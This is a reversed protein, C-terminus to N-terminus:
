DALRAAIDVTPYAIFPGARLGSWKLEQKTRDDIGVWARALAEKLPPAVEELHTDLTGPRARYPRVALLTLGANSLADITEHYTSFRVFGAQRMGFLGHTTDRTHSPMVPASYLFLGGPRLCRIMETLSEQQSAFYFLGYRCIVIDSVADSFPLKWPMDGQVLRIKEGGGDSESAERTVRLGTMDRDYCVVKRVGKLRAIPVAVTGPGSGIDLVRANTFAAIFWTYFELTLSHEPNMQWRYRKPYRDSLNDSRVPRCVDLDAATFSCRPCTLM